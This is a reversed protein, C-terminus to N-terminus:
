SDVTSSTQSHRRRLNSANASDIFLADTEEVFPGILRDLIAEHLARM